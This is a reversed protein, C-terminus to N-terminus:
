SSIKLNKFAVSPCNTSSTFLKSNNGVAVVDNFLKFLNGGVTFLNLFKDLKGDKILYGEAQLSFDGSMSNLGAHLGNISTIYVGNNIKKFLEEESSKGPKLYLNVTSVGIRSSGYGNGTSERNEKKATELNYFLTKLVGKKVVEKNVTAVGEDDFYTFFCNKELPKELVTIKSSVIKQDVKGEFLSSHKQTEESSANSILANLLSSVCDNSLVGKYKGTKLDIADFKPSVKEVLEKVIEDVNIIKPDTGFVIKGEDKTVGGVQMYVSTYIYFFNSKNKLKLGYSNLLQKEEETKSFAVQVDSVRSDVAKLKTEIEFLTKIVDETSWDELAKSYVNKKHYKESGKFINPEEKKEILKANSIINDLLYDISEDSTKETSVSSIKGNYIGRAVISSETSVENEDIEGRFVSITTSSTKRMKLESVEIGKEKAKLFFKNTNM